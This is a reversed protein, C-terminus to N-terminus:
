CQCTTKIYLFNFLPAGVNWAWSYVSVFHITPLNVKANQKDTISDSVNRPAQCVFASRRREYGTCTDGLYSKSSGGCLIHSNIQTFHSLLVCSPMHFICFLYRGCVCMRLCIFLSPPPVAISNPFRVFRRRHLPVRIARLPSLSSTGHAM